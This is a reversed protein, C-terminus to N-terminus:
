VDTEEVTKLQADLARRRNALAIYSDVVPVGQGGSRGGGATQNVLAHYPGPTVLAHLLASEATTIAQTLQAKILQVSLENAQRQATVLFENADAAVRQSGAADRTADALQQQSNALQKQAAASEALHQAQSRMEARTLKLEHRQLALEHRQLGVSIVATLVAVASFFSAFPAMADGALGFNAGNSMRAVAMYWVLLGLLGTGVAFWPWLLPKPAPPESDDADVVRPSEQSQLNAM